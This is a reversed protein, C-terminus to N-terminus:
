RDLGTKVARSLELNNFPIFFYNINLTEIKKKTSSNEKKDPNSIAIIPLDFFYENNRIHTAFEINKEIEDHALVVVKPEYMFIKSLFKIMSNETMVEHNGVAKLAQDLVKMNIQSSGSIMVRRKDLLLPKKDM